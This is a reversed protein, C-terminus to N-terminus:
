KAARQEAHALRRKAHKAEWGLHDLQIKLSKGEDSLHGAANIQRQVKAARRKLVEVQATMREVQGLPMPRQDATAGKKAPERAFCDPCVQALQGPAIGNGGVKAVYAREHKCQAPAENKPAPDPKDKKKAM